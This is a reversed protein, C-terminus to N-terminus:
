YHAGASPLRHGHLWFQAMVMGAHVMCVDVGQRNMRPPV